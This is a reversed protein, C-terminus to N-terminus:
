PNEIPKLEDIRFGEADFQDKVEVMAFGMDYDIDIIRAENGYPTIVRDGQKM